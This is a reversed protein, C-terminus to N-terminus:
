ANAITTVTGSSGRYKLAGGEVYLQGMGAPSTTPATGNAIGLVTAASTGFTSTGIGVNGSSDIRMRETAGNVRFIINSGSDKADVYLNNDSFYTVAGGATTISWTNSANQFLVSSQNTLMLSKGAGYGASLSTTGIGVNGSSDIRMRESGATSLYWFDSTYNYGGLGASFVGSGDGKQIAFEAQTGGVNSNFHTFRTSTTSPGILAMTAGAFQTTSTNRAHIQREGSASPGSVELRAGPSTTGIGVNGASTIRMHETSNTSLILPDAAGTSIIATYGVGARNQLSSGSAHEAALIGVTAGSTDTSRSRVTISGSGQVDLKRDPASTGIGVNGDSGRIMMRTTFSATSRFQFDGTTSGGGVGSDFYMTNGASADNRIASDTAIYYSVGLEAGAAIAGNVQLKTFPGTTGIGVNGASTIRMKETNNTNFTMPHNSVARLDVTGGGNAAFQAQVSGSTAGVFNYTANTTQINGSVALREGPSTTGIGVNGTDTIRMRETQATTFKLSSFGSVVTNFGGMPETYSIGYDAVTTGDFSFTGTGFGVYNGTTQSASISGAVALKAGPSSTGIGVNGGNTIRMVEAGANVSWKYGSFTTQAGSFGFFGDASDRGFDYYSTGGIGDKVRIQSSGGSVIDLKNGPASTGVGVNGGFAALWIDRKTVASNGQFAEISVGTGDNYIALTANTADAPGAGFRGIGVVQLQSAPSSTGIGLRDNANDWFLNANDQSYVGSAGAFVVSGATFATATGTGGNAVPLTGSVHTALGIKGYSPAVGVGGSILANGTAVDALKSLATTTSAFLIDGVAYSSQGTGGNVAVLTGSLTLTGSSTIPGGSFTLGTFGGSANVSTVTGNAKDISVVVGSANEFFLKEDATNLALEGPALDAALPVAGPTASRYLQIPTFGSQAM